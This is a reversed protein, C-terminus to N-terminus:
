GGKRRRKEAKGDNVGTGKEKLISSRKFSHRLDSLFFKTFMREFNIRKRGPKRVLKRRREEQSGSLTEKKEM